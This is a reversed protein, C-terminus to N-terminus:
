MFKKIKKLNNKARKLTISVTGKTVGLENSIQVITKNDFYYMNLIEKQRDTLYENMAIKLNNKM